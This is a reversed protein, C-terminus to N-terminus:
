KEYLPPTSEIAVAEVAGQFIVKWKECSLLPGINLIFTGECFSLIVAWGSIVIFISLNDLSNDMLYNCDLFGDM